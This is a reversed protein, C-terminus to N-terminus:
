DAARQQRLVEDGELDRRVEQQDGGHARDDERAPAAADVLLLHAHARHREEERRSRARHGLGDLPPRTRLGVAREARRGAGALRPRVAAVCGVPRGRARPGRLALAHSSLADNSAQGRQRGGAPASAILTSQNRTTEASIKQMPAPPTSVRRLGSTTRSHRSSMSLAAFMASIAKARIHPLMSPWIKAITTITTAAQSTHM